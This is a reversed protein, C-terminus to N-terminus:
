GVFNIQSRFHEVAERICEEPIAKPMSNQFRGIKTWSWTTRWKHRSTPKEEYMDSVLVVKDEILAFTLTRRKLPDDTLVTRTFRQIVIRVKKFLDYKRFLFILWV